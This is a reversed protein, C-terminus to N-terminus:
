GTVTVTGTMSHHINCHYTFTGAKAFVQKFTTGPTIDSSNFSGDDATVTHATTDANTWTVSAGVKVTLTAPGFAFNAIKVDSGSGGTAASAAASPAASAAAAQGVGGTITGSAATADPAVLFWVGKVGQGKVDGAASDGAFYYLPIGNYTVQGKGDDARAFTALKGTVGDGPTVTEGPDLEFPPWATACGATCNTTSPADKTLLYLAKGGEGTLYAGLKADQAVKVQYVAASAAVSAPPAATPPTTPAATAASGSCAAFLFAAAAVLATVRRSTTVRDTRTM